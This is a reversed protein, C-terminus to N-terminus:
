KRGFSFFTSFCPTNRTKYRFMQMLVYASFLSVYRIFVVCRPKSWTGSWRSLDNFTKQKEECYTGQPKWTALDLTSKSGMKVFAAPFINPLPENNEFEELDLLHKTKEARSVVFIFAYNIKRISIECVRGFTIHNWLLRFIFNLVYSLNKVSLQHSNIGTWLTRLLVPRTKFLQNYPPTLKCGQFRAEMKCLYMCLHM